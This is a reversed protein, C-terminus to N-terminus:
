TTTKQTFWLLIVRLFHFQMSCNCGKDKIRFAIYHNFIERSQESILIRWARAYWAWSIQFNHLAVSRRVKKVSVASKKKRLLPSTRFPRKPRSFVQRLAVSRLAIFAYSLRFYTMFCNKKFNFVCYCYSKFFFIFFLSIGIKGSM